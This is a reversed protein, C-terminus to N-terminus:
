LTGTCGYVSAAEQGHSSSVVKWASGSQKSMTYRHVWVCEGGGARPVLEGGELRTRVTQECHVTAGMCVRRRMFTREYHVPAGMCM